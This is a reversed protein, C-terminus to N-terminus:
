GAPRLGTVMAALPQARNSALSLLRLLLWVSFAMLLTLLLNGWRPQQLTARGLALLALCIMIHMYHRHHIAV